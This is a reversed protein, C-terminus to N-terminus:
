DKLHSVDLNEPMIPTTFPNIYKNILALSEDPDALVYSQGKYFAWYDGPLLHFNLSEGDMDLIHAGFWMIEGTSLNTEVNDKIIDAFDKTKLLNELKLCQKFVEMLFSQTVEIRKIDGEIYQRYRVMCLAQKGDLHQPGARLNIYLDQDEDTYYMNYPVNYDVGGIENVLREFGKLKVVIYHDPVFGIVWKLEEKLRDIKGVGWAGNIRKITRSVKVQTDRPINLIDLTSNKTDLKAVMLVDTNANENDVGAIIFTHVGEAHEGDDPNGYTPPVASPNQPDDEGPEATPQTKVGGHPPEVIGTGGTIDMYVAAAACVLGVIILSIFIIINRKRFIDSKSKDKKDALRKGGNPTHNQEKM